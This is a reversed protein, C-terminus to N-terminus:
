VIKYNIYDLVMNNLTNIMKNIPTHKLIGCGFMIVNIQQIQVKIFMVNISNFMQIKM